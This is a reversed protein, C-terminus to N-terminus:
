LDCNHPDAHEHPPTRACQLAPLRVHASNPPQGHRGQRFHITSGRAQLPQACHQRTRPATIQKSAVQFRCGGVLGSRACSLWPTEAPCPNPITKLAININVTASNVLGDYAPLQAATPLASIASDVGSQGTLMVECGLYTCISRGGNESAMHSLDAGQHRQGIQDSAQGRTQALCWEAKTCRCLKRCCPAIM